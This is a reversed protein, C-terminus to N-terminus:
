LPQARNVREEQSVLEPDGNLYRAAKEMLKNLAEEAEDPDGSIIGETYEWFTDTTAVSITFAVSGTQDPM